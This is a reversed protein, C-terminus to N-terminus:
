KEEGAELLAKVIDIDGSGVAESMVGVDSSGTHHPDAGHDLLLNVIQAQRNRAAAALADNKIFQLHEKGHTLEQKFTAQKGKELLLRVVETHGQIATQMLTSGGLMDSWFPDAGQDLFLQVMEVHGATAARNLAKNNEYNPYYDKTEMIKEM